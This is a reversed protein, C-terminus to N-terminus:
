AELRHSARAPTRPYECCTGTVSAWTHPGFFIAAANAARISAPAQPPSPSPFLPSAGSAPRFCSWSSPPGSVVVVDAAGSLEVVDAVAVGFVVALGAAAEGVVTTAGAARRPRYLGGWEGCDEDGGGRGVRRFEVAQGVLEGGVLRRQAGGGSRRGVDRRQGAPLLGGVPRQRRPGVGDGM